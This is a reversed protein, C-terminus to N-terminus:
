KAVIWFYHPCLYYSSIGIVSFTAILLTTFKLTKM